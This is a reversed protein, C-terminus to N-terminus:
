EYEAVLRIKKWAGLGTFNLEVPHRGEQRNPGDMLCMNFYGLRWNRSNTQVYDYFFWPYGVGLVKRKVKRKPTM